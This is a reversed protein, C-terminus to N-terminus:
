PLPIACRWNPSPGLCAATTASGRDAAPLPEYARLAESVKGCRSIASWVAASTARRPEDRDWTRRLRGLVIVTSLKDEADQLEGLLTLGEVSPM